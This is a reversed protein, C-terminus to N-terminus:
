AVYYCNKYTFHEPLAIVVTPAPTSATSHRTNDRPQVVLPQYATWAARHKQWVSCRCRVSQWLQWCTYSTYIILWLTRAKRPLLLHWELLFPPKHRPHIWLLSWNLLYVKFMKFSHSHHRLPIATACDPKHSPSATSRPTKTRHYRCSTDGRWFM